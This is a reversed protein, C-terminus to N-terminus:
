QLLPAVALLFWLDDAYQPVFQFVTYGGILPPPRDRLQCPVLLTEGRISYSESVLGVPRRRGLIDCPDEGKFPSRKYPPISYKVATKVLSDICYIDKV